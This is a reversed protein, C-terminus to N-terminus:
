APSRVARHGTAPRRASTAPSASSATAPVAPFACSFRTRCGTRGEDHREYADAVLDVIEKERGTLLGDVQGHKIILMRGGGHLSRLEQWLHSVEGFHARVWDDSYISDLYRDGRDPFVLVVNRGAPIRAAFKGLAATVAGLLRRRPHGRPRHPHPVRGRVGPRLRAGGRRGADPRLPRAAGGRRAGAAAAAPREASCCAAWHTWAWWRPPCGTNASTAPAAPSPAAREPPASSTTSAATSPRPSRGCPGSTRWRTSRIPTSTPGTPAPSPPSSNGCGSSVRRCTPARRPTSRPSWTSPSATPRLIALNQETTKPDVVCIFDIGFYRCIQAMGIALNGSSSEVVTSRGPVLDGSRIRGLLMSLASRDRVSGGPNFAELKAFVRSGFRPLLGTLEVLPTDGVGDLIGNLVPASM